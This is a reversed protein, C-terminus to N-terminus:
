LYSGTVLLCMLVLITKNIKKFLIETQQPLVEMKKERCILCHLEIGYM